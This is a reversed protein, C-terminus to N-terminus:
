NKSKLIKELGLRTFHYFFVSSYVHNLHQCDGAPSESYSRELSQEYTFYNLQVLYGSHERRSDFCMETKRLM